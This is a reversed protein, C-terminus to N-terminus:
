SRPSRQLRLVQVVLGERDASSSRSSKEIAVGATVRREADVLEIRVVRELEDCEIRIQARDTAEVREGVIWSTVGYHGVSSSPSPPRAAASVLPTSARSSSSWPASSGTRSM